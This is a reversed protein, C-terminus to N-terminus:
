KEGNKRIILHARRNHEKGYEDAWTIVKFEIIDFRDGILRKIGDVSYYSQVTDKEYGNQQIEERDSQEEVGMVLDLYMLAGPRLVRYVEAIGLDAITRPMSDFVGHSVCINFSNDEYPLETASGVVLKKALGEKGISALWKKGMNIATDSLDIGYSNLGFEDLFLVHRGMGCGLDLSAFESWEDDSLAMVNRFSSDFEKKRIYKNVFRIIEEHPYFCVNGGRNYSENWEKQNLEKLKDVM